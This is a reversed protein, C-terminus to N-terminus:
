DKVKEKDVLSAYCPFSTTAQWYTSSPSLAPSSGDGVWCVLGSNAEEQCSSGWSKGWSEGSVGCGVTAGLMAEERDKRQITKGIPCRRGM